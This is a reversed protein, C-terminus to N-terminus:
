YHLLFQEWEMKLRLQVVFIKQVVTVFILSLIDLLTTWIYSINKLSRSIKM